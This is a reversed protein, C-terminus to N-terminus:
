HSSFCPTNLIYTYLSCVEDDSYQSLIHTLAIALPTSFRNPLTDLIDSAKTKGKITPPSARVGLPANPIFRYHEYQGFNVSAHQASGTFMIITCHEVLDARNTFQNPFDVGPEKGEYGPFGNHHIDAAWKQIDTDNKVDEDSPYFYNIIKPALEEIADWIKFGDDRYYNM